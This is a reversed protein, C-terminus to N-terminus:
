EGRTGAVGVPTLRDTTTGDRERVFVVPDGAVTPDYDAAAHTTLRELDRGDPAAHYLDRNGDVVMDFLIM